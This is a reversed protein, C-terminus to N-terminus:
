LMAKFIEINTSYLPRFRCGLWFQEITVPGGQSIYRRVPNHIERLFLGLDDHGYPRADVIDRITYVGGLMPIVTSAYRPM